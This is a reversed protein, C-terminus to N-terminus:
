VHLNEDLCQRTLSNGKVNLRRVRDVVDLGLNLVLFSNRRILLSQNEGTFLQFIAASQTIVVDLFFAGQMQDQTESTSDVIRGQCHQCLFEVAVLGYATFTISAKRRAGSVAALLFTSVGTLQAGLFLELLYYLILQLAQRLRPEKNTEDKLEM